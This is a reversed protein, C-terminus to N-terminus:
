RELLRLPSDKGLSAAVLLLLLFMGVYVLLNRPRPHECQRMFDHGNSEESHVPDSGANVAEGEDEVRWILRGNEETVRSFMDKRDTCNWTKDYNHWTGDNGESYWKAATFLKALVAACAGPQKIEAGCLMAGVNIASPAAIEARARQQLMMKQTIVKVRRRDEEEMQSLASRLRVSASVGKKRRHDMCFELAQMNLDVTHLYGWFAEVRVSKGALKLAKQEFLSEVLRHFKSRSLPFCHRQKAGVM